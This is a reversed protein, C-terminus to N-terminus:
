GSIVLWQDGVTIDDQARAKGLAFSRSKEYWGADVGSLSDAREETKRRRYEPSM